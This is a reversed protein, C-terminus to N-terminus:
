LQKGRSSFKNQGVVGPQLAVKISIWLGVLFSIYGSTIVWHQDYNLFSLSFTITAPICFMLQVWGSQNIDHLRKTFGAVGIWVVILYNLIYFYSQTDTLFFLPTSVISAPLVTGLWFLRRGIRGKFSFLLELTSM